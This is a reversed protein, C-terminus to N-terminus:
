LQESIGTQITAIPLPSPDDGQIPWEEQQQVLNHSGGLM